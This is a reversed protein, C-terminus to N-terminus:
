ARHNATYEGFSIEGIDLSKLYKGFSKLLLKRCREKANVIDSSVGQKLLLGLYNHAEEAMNVVIVRRLAFWCCSNILNRLLLRKTAGM